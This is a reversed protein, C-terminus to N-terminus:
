GRWGHCCVRGIPNSWRLVLSLCKPESLLGVLKQADVETSPRVAVGYTPAEYTTWRQTENTWDSYPPSFFETASSLGLQPSSLVSSLNISPFLASMVPLHLANGLALLWSTLSYMELSSHNLHCKLQNMVATQQIKIDHTLPSALEQIRIRTLFLSSM